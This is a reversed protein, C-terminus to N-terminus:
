YDVIELISSRRVPSIMKLVVQNDVPPTEGESMCCTVFVLRGMDAGVFLGSLATGHPVHPLVVHCPFVGLDVMHCM